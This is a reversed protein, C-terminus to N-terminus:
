SISKKSEILIVVRSKQNTYYLNGDTKITKKNTFITSGGKVQGLWTNPNQYSCVLVSNTTMGSLLLCCHISSVCSSTFTQYSSSDSITNERTCLFKWNQVLPQLLCEGGAVQHINKPTFSKGKRQTIRLFRIRLFHNVVAAM